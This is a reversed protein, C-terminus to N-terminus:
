ATERIAYEEEHSLTAESNAKIYSNNEATGVYIRLHNGEMPMNECSFCAPYEVTYDLLLESLVEIAKKQVGNELAGYIIAINKM